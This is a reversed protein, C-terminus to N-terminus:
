SQKQRNSSVWDAKGDASMRVNLLVCVCVHGGVLAHRGVSGGSRGVLHVSRGVSKFSKVSSRTKSRRGHIKEALPIFPLIVTIFSLSRCHGVVTYKVSSRTNSRRGLVQGVVSSKVSSTIIITIILGKKKQFLIGSLKKGM